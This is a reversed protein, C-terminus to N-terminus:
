ERLLRDYRGEAPPTSDMMQGHDEQGQGHGVQETSTATPASVRNLWVEDDNEQGGYAQAQGLVHDHTPRQAHARHSQSGGQQVVRQEQGSPMQGAGGVGSPARAVVGRGGLIDSEAVSQVLWARDEAAGAAYHAAAAERM